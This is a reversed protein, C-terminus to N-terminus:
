GRASADAAVRRGLVNLDVGARAAAGADVISRTDVVLRGRMVDALAPWDLERFQQWETAVVVADAGVAADVPTSCGAAAVGHETLEARAAETAAPDYIRLDAGRAALLRCVRLAPSDRIDATGAKFTLGLVAVTSGVLSGGLEAQLQDVYWEATQENSTAIVDLLATPVGLRRAVAPLERAQSPLCAGGFGPGPSLFARGIRRDLGIADVVQAVDADARASLRALENAFAIKMALFVNSGVKILEATAVDTVVLPAELPAYLETVMRALRDSEEAGSLGIIVRDPSLFDKVASGERTFEPNYALDIRPDIGKTEAQISLASGPMLTSRVVIARPAQRDGALATTARRVFQDTWQDDADLTGVAVITLETGRVSKSDGHFSLTGAQTAADVLERLGPEDIPLENNLLGAVRADDIEICRVRHGLKALCAATVLGVYGAGLVSILM